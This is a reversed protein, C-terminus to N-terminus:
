ATRWFDPSAIERDLLYRRTQGLYYTYFSSRRSLFNVLEDVLYPPSKFSRADNLYVNLLLLDPEFKLGRDKLWVLEQELGYDETGCNIVEINQNNFEEQILVELRKVFTQNLEVGLGETISDGLALIRYTDNPKPIDVDKDRLGQKNIALHFAAGHFYEIAEYGPTWEWGLKYDLQTREKAPHEHLVLRSFSELSLIFLLTSILAILLNSRLNKRNM